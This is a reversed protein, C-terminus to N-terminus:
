IPVRLPNRPSVAGSRLQYDGPALHLQNLFIHPIAHSQRWVFYAEMQNAVISAVDM